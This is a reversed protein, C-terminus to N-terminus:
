RPIPDGAGTGKVGTTADYKFTLNGQLTYNAAQSVTPQCIGIMIVIYVTTRWRM